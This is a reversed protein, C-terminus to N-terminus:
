PGIREVQSQFGTVTPAGTIGSTWAAELAFTNNITSNLAAARTQGIAVLAQGGTPGARLECVIDATGSTGLTKWVIELTCKGFFTGSAACFSAPLTAEGGGAAISAMSLAQATTGQTGFFDLVLRYKTGIQMDNALMNIANNSIPNFTTTTVTDSTFDAPSALLPYGKFGLGGGGAPATISPLGNPNDSAAIRTFHTGAADGSLFLTGGESIGFHPGTVPGFNEGQGYPNGFADTGAAGAISAILNGPGPFPSYVFVGSGNTGANVILAKFALFFNVGGPIVYVVATLGQACVAFVDKEGDVAVTGQPAIPVSNAAGPQVGFDGSMFVSNAQDANFILAPGDGASVLPVQARSTITTTLWDTALTGPREGAIM